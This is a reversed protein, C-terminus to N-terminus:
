YNRLIEFECVGMYGPAIEYKAFCIVPNGQANMYFQTEPTITKFKMEEADVEGADSGYGFYTKNEDQKLQEEIQRIISANCIQIYDPGLLDQLTVDTHTELNLNYYSNEQYSSVWGEGASLIMSLYPGEQYTVEYSVDIDMTRDAWEAETGGTEFFAAKYEEMDAKAKEIFADVASNIEANIDAVYTSNGTEPVAAENEEIQPVKATLIVSNEQETYDRVTLVRALAGIVPLNGLESAWVQSSNVGVTLCLLFAAAMAGITRIFILLKKGHKQGRKKEAQEIAAEVRASLEAPIEIQDYIEKGYNM